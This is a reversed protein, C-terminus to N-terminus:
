GNKENLGGKEEFLKALGLFEKSKKKFQKIQTRTKNKELTKEYSSQNKNKQIEKIDEEVIKGLKICVDSLGLCVESIILSATMNRYVKFNMLKDLKKNLRELM